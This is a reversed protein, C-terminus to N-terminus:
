LWVADPRVDDDTFVIVDGSAAAIGTNRAATQGAVPEFIYKAPWTQRPACAVARPDDVSGNDVVILEVKLGDPVQVAALEALTQKLSLAHNRTCIIVSIKM